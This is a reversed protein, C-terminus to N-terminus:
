QFFCFFTRMIFFALIHPTVRKDLLYIRFLWSILRKKIWLVSKHEPTQFSVANYQMFDYIFRDSCVLSITLELCFQKITIGCIGCQLPLTFHINTHQARIESQNISIPFDDSHRVRPFNKQQGKSLRYNLFIFSM